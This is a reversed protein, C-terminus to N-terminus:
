WTVSTRLTVSMSSLIRILAASDPSGHHANAYRLSRCIRGASSASPQRGGVYSGRAVPWMVSITASIDRNISL